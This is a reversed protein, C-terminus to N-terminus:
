DGVSTAYLSEVLVLVPSKSHGRIAYHGNNQTLEGFEAAKPAM